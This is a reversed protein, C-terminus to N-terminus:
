NIAFEGIFRGAVLSAAFFEPLIIGITFVVGFVGVATQLLFGIHWGISADITETDKTFRELIENPATMEFFQLPARCVSKLLGLFLRNSARLSGRYQIITRIFNCIVAVLCIGLYVLVYYNTVFSHTYYTM